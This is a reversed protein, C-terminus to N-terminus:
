PSETTVPTPVILPRVTATYEWSKEVNPPDSPSDGALLDDLDHLEREGSAHRADADQIRAACADLLTDDASPLYPSIKRRFVRAEPTMGCIEMMM